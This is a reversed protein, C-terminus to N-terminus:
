AAAEIQLATERPIPSPYPTKRIRADRDCDSAIALEAYAPLVVRKGRHDMANCRQQSIAAFCSEGLRRGFSNPLRASRNCGPLIEWQASSRVRYILAGDARREKQEQPHFVREEVRWAIEAEFLIEIEQEEDSVFIGFAKAIHDAVDIKSSKFM